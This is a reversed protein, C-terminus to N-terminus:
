SAGGDPQKSVGALARMFRVFPHEIELTAIFERFQADDEIKHEDLLAEFWPPFVVSYHLKGAEIESVNLVIPRPEINNAPSHLRQTTM